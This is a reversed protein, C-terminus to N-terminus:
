DDPGDFILVECLENVVAQAVHSEMDERSPKETHKYARNLGYKVGEEVARAIVDYTNVRIIGRVKM